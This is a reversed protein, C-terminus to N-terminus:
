FVIWFRNLHHINELLLHFTTFIRKYSGIITLDLYYSPSWDDLLLSYILNIIPPKYHFIRHCHFSLQPYGWKLCYGYIYIYGHSIWAINIRM